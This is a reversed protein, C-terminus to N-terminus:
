VRTIKLTEKRLTGMFHNMEKPNGANPLSPFSPQAKSGFASRPRPVAQQVASGTSSPQTLAATQAGPDM